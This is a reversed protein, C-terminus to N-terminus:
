QCSETCVRYEIGGSANQEHCIQIKDFYLWGLALATTSPCKGQMHLTRPETELMASYLCRTLNMETKLNLLSLFELHVRIQKERNKEGNNKKM